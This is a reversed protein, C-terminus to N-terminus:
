QQVILLWKCMKGTKEITMIYSGNKLQEVILGQNTLMGEAVVHGVADTLKYAASSNGESGLDVHVLTSAPNPYISFSNLAGDEIGVAGVDFPGRPEFKWEDDWYHLVGNMSYTVNLEPTMEYFLDHVRIVGIDNIAWWGEWWFPPGSWHFGELRILVGEWQEDSVQDLPLLQPEPQPNDISLLEGYYVDVMRTISSDWMFPGTPGQYEEITGYVLIEDGLQAAGPPNYDVYLGSYPGAGSQLYIEGGGQVVGTIIGSTAVVSDRYFSYETGAVPYQIEQISHYPPVPVVYEEVIFDDVVVHEPAETSRVSLLFEGIDTTTSCIITHSHQTWQDSAITDYVSGGDLFPGTSYLLPCIRGYGRAWYSVVYTIGEDVHLPQTTMARSGIAEHRMRVAFQGGHVNQSVLDVSDSSITTQSGFWYYPTPIEWAEFGDSFVQASSRAPCLVTALACAWLLPSHMLRM